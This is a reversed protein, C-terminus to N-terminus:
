GLSEIRWAGNQEVLRFTARRDESGEKGTVEATARTGNVQVDTVELSSDDAERLADDLEESCAVDGQELREVLETALLEKCVRAGDRRGAASQLEDIVEAVAREDGQFDSASSGTQGCAAVGLVCAVIVVLRM